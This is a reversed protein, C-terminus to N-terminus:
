SPSSGPMRYLSPRLSHARLVSVGSMCLRPRCSAPASIPAHEIGVGSGLCVCTVYTSKESLTAVCFRLQTCPRCACLRVADIMSSACYRLLTRLWVNSKMM